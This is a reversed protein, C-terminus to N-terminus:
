HHAECGRRKNLWVIKCDTYGCVPMFDRTFVSRGMLNADGAAGFNQRLSSKRKPRLGPKWDGCFDEYIGLSKSGM